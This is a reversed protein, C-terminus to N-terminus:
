AGQSNNLLLNLRGQGKYKFLVGEGGIQTQKTIVM